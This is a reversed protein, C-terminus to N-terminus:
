KAGAESAARSELARRIRAAGEEPFRLWRQRLADSIQRQSWAAQMVGEPAHGPGLLLHGLEHAIVFGLLLGLDGAHEKSRAQIAQVYVDAMTGGGHDEVFAKGVVDLSAPGMTLPPKGTQLRVVFWPDREQEAPSPFTDCDRWAIIVAASRFVLDTEAKAKAVIPEGVGDLNCVAVNMQQGAALLEVSCLATMLLTRM